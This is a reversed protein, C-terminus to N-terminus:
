AHAFGQPFSFLDDPDYKKKVKRLAPLNGGFYVRGFDDIERNPYNQYSHGNSLAGVVSDFYKVYAVAEDRADEYLWFSFLVVDLTATRHWFATADPRLSHIAGGFAELGIFNNADPTKRFVEVIRRWDGVSLCRDVLHSKALWRASAPVNEPLETPHILLYSNLEAYSGQRWVDRCREADPALEFLPELAKRCDSESGNFMGRIVFYPGPNEDGPGQTYVLLSQNGLDKPVRAGAFHEHWVAAASSAVDAEEETGIPWKFGFGWLPGLKHLRYQIELLVGFNNGTGGRVAWFLDQHEDANATVIRGDALAIQVATVNDCNMGFLLSTFSYGGGQMYGGVCVTECGGGPVHLGFLALEANLQAFNAGAGVAATAGAADVRVYHIGSVDIVMEDNVSYGATSHGGARCVPHLGVEKAFHICAVVDSFGECFVIVQPYHQFASMFAERDSNYSPDQPLVVRGVVRSTLVQLQQENFKLKGSHTPSLKITDHRRCIQRMRRELALNARSGFVRERCSLGVSRSSLM